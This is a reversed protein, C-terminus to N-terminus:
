NIGTLAGYENPLTDPELQSRVVDKMPTQAQVYEGYNRSMVKNVMKHMTYIHMAERVAIFVLLAVIIVEM